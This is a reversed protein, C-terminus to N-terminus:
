SLPAMKPPKGQLFHEGVLKAHYNVPDHLTLTRVDRWYRDFNEEVLTARAGCIQFIEECVRLAVETTVVKAQATVVMAEIRVQELRELETQRGYAALLGEVSRAAREIGGEGALLYAKMKGVQQLIYPDEVTKEVGGQVWPRTKTKVYQMAHNLAASAAGIFIASFTVQQMLGILVFSSTPDPKDRDAPKRVVLEWPVYVDNFEITGSATGRQGMAAPTWDDHIVMGDADRPVFAGAVAGDLMGMVLIRDSALSGTCFFKKGKVRVGDGGPTPHFATEWAYKTKAYRESSANAIFAHDEIIERCLRERQEAPLNPIVLSVLISNAGFMQAIAPNGTALTGVVEVIASFPLASGGNDRPVAMDLLGSQKLTSMEQHPFERDRDRLPYTRAFEAALASAKAIAAQRRDMDNELQM